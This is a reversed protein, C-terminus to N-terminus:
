TGDNLLNQQGLTQMDWNLEADWAYAPNDWELGALPNTLTVDPRPFRSVIPDAQRPPLRWPDYRDWCGEHIGPPCVRLGPSNGDAVFQILPRERQCRDCRGIQVEGSAYKIGM